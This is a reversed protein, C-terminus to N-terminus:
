NDLGLLKNGGQPIPMTVRDKGLISGTECAALVTVPETVVGHVTGALALPNGSVVPEPVLEVVRCHGGAKAGGSLSSGEQGVRAAFGGIHEDGM